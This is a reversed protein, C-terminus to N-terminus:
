FLLSGIIGGIIFALAVAAITANRKLIRMNIEITKTTIHDNKGKKM